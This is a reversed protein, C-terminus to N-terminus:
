FNEHDVNKIAFAVRTVNCKVTLKDMINHTFNMTAATHVPPSPVSVLAAVTTSAVTIM